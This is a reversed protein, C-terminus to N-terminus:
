IVSKYSKEEIILSGYKINIEKKLSSRKDNERYVSKALDIFEQDFEDKSDKARIKDEIEWLNSNIKHLQLLLHNEILLDNSKIIKELIEIENLINNLKKGEIKSKKIKLITYKDFLEGISIPAYIISSKNM